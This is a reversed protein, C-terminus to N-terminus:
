TPRAIPTDAPGQRELAALVRAKLAIFAAATTDQTTRPRPLPVDFRDVIEGPRPSLVYISDALILAEEVDHTVLLVTRGDSQWVDQLWGQMSRRTIADLAGLPEDLLLVPKPTLFTRLLALRQRMGGSLQSPWSDEFGALGFRTFLPEARAYAERRSIGAIQAGLTANDRVRRWPLLLSGQPMFAAGGPRGTVDVGAIRAVGQTPRLLGALVRLITSKGCGSPGILAVFVGEGVDLSV